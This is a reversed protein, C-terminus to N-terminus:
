AAQERREVDVRINRRRRQTDQLRRLDAFGSKRRPAVVVESREWGTITPTPEPVPTLWGLPSDVEEIRSFVRAGFASDFASRSQPTSCLLGAAAKRLEAERAHDQEKVAREIEKLLFWEAKSCGHRLFAQKCTNSCDKLPKTKSHLSVECWRCWGCFKLARKRPTCKRTRSNPTLRTRLLLAVPTEGIGYAPELNTVFEASPDLRVPATPQSNALNESQM